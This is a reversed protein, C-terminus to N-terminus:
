GNYFQFGVVLASAQVQSAGPCVAAGCGAALGHPEIIIHFSRGGRAVDSTGWTPWRLGLHAGQLQRAMGTLSPSGQSFYWSCSSHTRVAVREPPPLGALWRMSFLNLQGDFRM